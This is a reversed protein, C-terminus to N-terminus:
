GLTRSLEARFGERFTPYKLNWNLETRAKRNSIRKNSSGRKRTSPPIQETTKPIPTKTQESFWQFMESFQAPENDTINYIAGPQGFELSLVIALAADELHIVNSYREADVSALPEGSLFKKLYFGRGPGYIGALRLVTTEIQPAAALLLKETERLVCSTEVKPEAPSTEDVWSGDNQAYVSTSSTYVFKRCPFHKLWALINKNGEHYVKRCAEADGGGSASVNIVYDFAATFQNFDQSNTMDGQIPHCGLAELRSLAESSRRFVHVASGKTLLLKAVETGLYGCGFIITKM